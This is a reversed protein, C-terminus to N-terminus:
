IPWNKLFHVVEADNNSLGIVVKKYDKGLTKVIATKKNIDMDKVSRYFMDGKTEFNYKNIAFTKIEGACYKDNENKPLVPAKGLNINILHLFAYHQETAKLPTLKPPLIQDYVAIFVSPLFLIENFQEKTSNRKLNGNCNTELRTQKCVDRYKEIKILFEKESDETKHHLYDNLIQTVAINVEIQMRNNAEYKIIIKALDELLKRTKPEGFSQVFLGKTKESPFINNYEM